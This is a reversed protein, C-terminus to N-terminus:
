CAVKAGVFRLRIFKARRAAGFPLLSGALGAEGSPAGKDEM